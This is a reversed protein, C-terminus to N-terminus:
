LANWRSRWAFLRLGVLWVAIGFLIGLILSMLKPPSQITLSPELDSVGVEAFRNTVLVINRHVTEIAALAPNDESSDTAKRQNILDLIENITSSANRKQALLAKMSTTLELVVRDSKIRNNAVRIAEEKDIRESELGIIQQHPSLYRSGQVQVQTGFFSNNELGSSPSSQIQTLAALKRKISSVEMSTIVATVQQDAMSNGAERRLDAITEELLHVILVERLYRVAFRAIEGSQEADKDIATAVISSNSNRRDNKNPAFLSQQLVDPLDRTDNRSISFTHSFVVPGGSGSAFQNRLLKYVNENDLQNSQAFRDLWEVTRLKDEISRFLAIDGQLPIDSEARYKILSKQVALGSLGGILIALMGVAISTKTLQM